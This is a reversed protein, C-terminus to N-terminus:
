YGSRDREAIGLIAQNYREAALLAQIGHQQCLDSLQQLAQQRHTIPQTVFDPCDALAALLPQFGLCALGYILQKSLRAEPKVAGLDDVAESFYGGHTDIKGRFFDSSLKVYDIFNLSQKGLAHSLLGVQGGAPLPEQYDTCDFFTFLEAIPKQTPDLLEMQRDLLSTRALSYLYKLYSSVKVREGSEPLTALEAQPAVSQPAAADPTLQSRPQMGVLTGDIPDLNVIGYALPTDAEPMRVVVNGLRYGGERTRAPFSAYNAATSALKLAMDGENSFLYTEEFRRLSSALFNARSSIITEAPIDPAVLVLRGLAFVHGINPSPCKAKDVGASTRGISDNDFVDSLIRMTNTVVFAGMSHGVFSLKIRPRASWNAEPDTEVVAKDLQRIFEVLDPVGFNTARYSDRFYGAIRLLFLTAVVAIALVALVLISVGVFGFAFSGPMTTFVAALTLGLLALFAAIAVVKLAIPLSQRAYGLKKDLTDNGFGKVQESPWRYGILMLGDSRQPCHKVIHNRIDQYWGKVGEGRQRQNEDTAFEGLATNYGHVAILIEPNAQACLFNAIEAITPEPNAVPSVPDEVNNPATSSVFYAPLEACNTDAAASKVSPITEVNILYAGKSPTMTRAGM